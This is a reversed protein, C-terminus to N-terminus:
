KFTFDLALTEGAHIDISQTHNGLKENWAVIEYGGEPVVLAYTGNLKSITHYPHAFVGV